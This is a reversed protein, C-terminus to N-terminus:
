GRLMKKISALNPASIASKEPIKSGNVHQIQVQLALALLVYVAEEPRLLEEKIFENFDRLLELGVKRLSEKRRDPIGTAPWGPPVSSVQLVNNLLTTLEARDFNRPVPPTATPKNNKNESM